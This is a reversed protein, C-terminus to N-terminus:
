CSYHMECISFDVTEKIVREGWGQFRKLDMAVDGQHDNHIKTLLFDTILGRDLFEHATEAGGIMFIKQGSLAAMEFATDRAEEPSRAVRIGDSAANFTRSLIIPTRTKYAQEPLWEFTKRGMIIVAGATTKRYIDLEEPYDWPLGNGQSLGIVGGKATAAMIGTIKLM